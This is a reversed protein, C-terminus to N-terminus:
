GGQVAQFLTVVLAGMLISIWIFVVALFERGYKM